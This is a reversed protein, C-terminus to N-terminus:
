VVVWHLDFVEEFIGLQRIWSWQDIKTIHVVEGILERSVKVVVPLVLKNFDIKELHVLISSWFNQTSEKLEVAVLDVDLLQKVGDSDAWDRFKDVLKLM